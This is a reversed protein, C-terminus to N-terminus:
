HLEDRTLLEVRLDFSGSSVNLRVRAGRAADADVAAGVIGQEPCATARAGDWLDVACAREVVRVLHADDVLLPVAVEAEATLPVGVHLALVAGVAARQVATARSWRVVVDGAPTRVTANLRSPGLARSVHPAVRVRRYGDEAAGIGALSRYLWAGVGGCLWAHNRSGHYHDLHPDITSWGEWCTSANQVVAWHAWGPFAPNLVLRLAADHAAESAGSLTELLFNQGVSGVSLSFNASSVDELVAAAASVAYSSSSGLAATAAGDITQRSARDPAFSRASANWFASVFASRAHAAAGRYMAEDAPEGLAAALEVMADLAAVFNASAGVRGALQKSAATCGYCGEDGYEAPTAAPLAGVSAVWAKLAPWHTRVAQVDGYARLLARASMVFGATWSVDNSDADV